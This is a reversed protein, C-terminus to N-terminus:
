GCTLPELSYGFTFHTKIPMGLERLTVVAHRIGDVATIPGGEPDDCYVWEILAEMSVACGNAHRLCTVIARRLLRPLLDGDANRSFSLGVGKTQADTLPGHGGRLSSPIPHRATQCNGSEIDTTM